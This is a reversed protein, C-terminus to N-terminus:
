AAVLSLDVIHSHLELWTEGECDIWRQAETPGPFYNVRDTEGNPWEIKVCFDLSGASRCVTFTPRPQNACRPM